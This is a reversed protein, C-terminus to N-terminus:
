LEHAVVALFDDRARVAERLEVILQERSDTETQERQVPKQGARPKADSSPEDSTDRPHKAMAKEQVPRISRLPMYIRQAVDLHSRILLNGAIGCGLISPPRRASTSSPHRHVPEIAPVGM